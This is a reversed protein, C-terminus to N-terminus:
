KLNKVCLWPSNGKFKIKTLKVQYGNCVYHTPVLSQILDQRNHSGNDSPTAIAVLQSGTLEHLLRITTVNPSHVAVFLM